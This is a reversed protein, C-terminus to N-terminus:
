NSIPIKKAVTVFLILGNLKLQMYWMKLKIKSHHSGKEWCYYLILVRGRAKKQNISLRAHWLDINQTYPAQVARTCVCPHDCPASSSSTGLVTHVFDLIQGKRKLWTNSLWGSDMRARHGHTYQDSKLTQLCHIIWTMVIQRTRLRDHHIIRLHIIQLEAVPDLVDKSHDFVECVSGYHQYFSSSPDMTKTVRRHVWFGRLISISGRDQHVCTSGHHWLVACISGNDQFNWLYTWVGPSTERIYKYEQHLKVLTSM